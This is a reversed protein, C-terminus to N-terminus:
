HLFRLLLEYTNAGTAVGSSYVIDFNGFTTRLADNIESDSYNRRRGSGSVEIYLYETRIGGLAGLVELEFGEVDIKVLDYEHRGTVEAPDHLVHVTIAEVKDQSGANERFFSGVGSRNPEHFFEHDATQPGLAYNFCRMRDTANKTLLGFVGPNPEFSDIRAEPCLHALTLSFQGLNAGIDLVHAPAFEMHGLLKKGVEYPYNQLNLPTAPNDYYFDTGLYKISKSHRTGLRFYSAVIAPYYVLKNGPSIPATLWERNRELLKLNQFAYSLKM